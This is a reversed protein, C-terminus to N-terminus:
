GPCRAAERWQVTREGAHGALPGAVRDLATALVGVAERALRPDHSRRRGLKQRAHSDSGTPATQVHATAVALDRDLERVADARAPPGHADVDILVGQRDGALCCLLRPHPCLEHVAVRGLRGRLVFEVERVGAEDEAV